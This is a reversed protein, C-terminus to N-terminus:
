RPSADPWGPRPFRQHSRVPEVSEGMGEHLVHRLGFHAVVPSVPPQGVKGLLASDLLHLMRFSENLADDKEVPQGPNTDPQLKLKAAIHLLLPGGVGDDIALAM